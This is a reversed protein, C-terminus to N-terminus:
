NIVSKIEELYKEAIIKWDYNEVVYQRARKGFDRSFNRDELLYNIKKVYSDIDYPEVLFGNKGNQIANKLGEMNSAIVPLECSAAELIVLGFGELDGVVKINPQVFLDVSNYLRLKEPDSVNELVKVCDQQDTKKIAGLINKKDPGKGAVIYLVDKGFRPMVNEIFWAVGKRKAMRGLTLIIKKNRIDEGLAKKFDFKEKGKRINRTDVGNPIFILKEKAMGAKVGVNITELGVAIFKDIKKLFVGVWLKQYLAILLKEYWVGLSASNYNIDLGHVISLVPKKSFLKIFFAIFSLVGDGLVVADYNRLILLTKILAYPAFVPLFKRGLKNAIIKTETIRALSNAIEYNQREIGGIIPPYARSVFIIKM